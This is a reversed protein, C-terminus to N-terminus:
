RRGKLEAAIAEAASALREHVATMRAVNVAAWLAIALAAAGGILVVIGFWSM